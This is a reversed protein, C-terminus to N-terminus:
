RFTKCLSGDSNKHKYVQFKLRKTHYKLIQVFYKVIYKTLFSRIFSHLWDIIVIDNQWEAM